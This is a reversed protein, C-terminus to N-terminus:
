VPCIWSSLRSHSLLRYLAEHSKFEAEQREPETQGPGIGLTREPRVDPGRREADGVHQRLVQGAGAEPEAIREGLGFEAGHSVPPDGNSPFAGLVEAGLSDPVAALGDGVELAIEVPFPNEVEIDDSPLQPLGRRESRGRHDAVQDPSVDGPIVSVKALDAHGPNWVPPAATLRPDPWNGFLVHVEPGEM